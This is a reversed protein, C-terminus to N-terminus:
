KYKSYIAEVKQTAWGVADEVNGGSQVAQAVMLPIIWNTEVEAAAPTPPGPFGVVRAAQDFDQLIQYKPDEGIFPMPKKRFNKLLPQNYGESAKVADIFVAYFDTLFAKAAAVNKSWNMIGWISTGVSAYRGAPGAPTNWVYIKKALEPNEKEITRLASIPNHIWSGKGSALLQNNATDDWSLVENTMTKNYLELAFTVSTRTEPSNIAATKGDKAVYSAGYCWLLSTWSNNADNCKQNIAIGIQNGKAKLITGVKLLDGWTDPPQLGNEDFLDKRYETSFEIFFDPIGKWVGEFMGIQEALPTVWGGHQDGFQKALDSVDVLQKNYVNIAGGQTFTFLDHGDGAAVEAAWKAPLEAALIHDVAVEVKNKTGWEAAWKDLWVDYAPVFHSRTLLKLSGGGAFGGPAAQAAPKAAEAPKAPEAVPKAPEAAPKAPAATPAPAAAPGCAALLAVGAVGAISVQLFRRRSYSRHVTESGHTSEDNPKSSDRSM